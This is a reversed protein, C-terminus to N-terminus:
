YFDNTLHKKFAFTRLNRQEGFEQIKRKKRSNREVREM